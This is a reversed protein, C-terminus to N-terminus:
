GGLRHTGDHNRRPDRARLPAVLAAIGASALHAITRACPAFRVSGRDRAKGANAACRRPMPLAQRLSAYRLSPGRLPQCLSFAHCLLYMM